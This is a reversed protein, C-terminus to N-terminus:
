IWLSLQHCHHPTSMWCVFVPRSASNSSPLNRTVEDATHACWMVMVLQANSFSKICIKIVWSKKWFNWICIQVQLRQTLQFNGLILLDHDWHGNKLTRWACYAKSLNSAYMLSRNLHIGHFEPVPIRHNSNLFIPNWSSPAIEVRRPVMTHKLTM